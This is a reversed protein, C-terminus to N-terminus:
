LPEPFGAVLFGIFTATTFVPGPTFQGIAM